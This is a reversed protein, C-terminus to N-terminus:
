AGLIMSVRSELNEKAIKGLKAALDSAGAMAEAIRFLEAATEKAAVTFRKLAAQFAETDLPEKEMLPEIPVDVRYGALLALGTFGMSRLLERRNM